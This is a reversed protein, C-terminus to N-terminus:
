ITIKNHESTEKKAKLYRSVSSSVSYAPLLLVILLGIHMLTISTWDIHTEDWSRKWWWHGTEHHTVNTQANRIMAHFLLNIGVSITISIWAKKKLADPKSIKDSRWEKWGTATLYYTGALIAACIAIFIIAIVIYFIIFAALIFLILFVLPPLNSFLDGSSKRPSRQVHIWEDSQAHVTRKKNFM